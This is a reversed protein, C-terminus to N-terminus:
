KEEKLGDLGPVLGTSLKSNTYLLLALTYVVAGRYEQIAKEPSMRQAEQIKKIAQFALGSGDGLLETITFLPQRDFSKNDAHRDRGKGEIAQSIAYHAAAVLNTYDM